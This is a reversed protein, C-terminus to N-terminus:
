KLLMDMDTVPQKLSTDIEIDLEFYNGNKGQNSHYKGSFCYVPTYVWMMLAHVRIKICWFGYIQEFMFCIFRMKGNFYCNKRRMINGNLYDFFGRFFFPQGCIGHSKVPFNGEYLSIFENQFWIKNKTAKEKQFGFSM